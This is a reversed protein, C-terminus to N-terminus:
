LRAFIFKDTALLTPGDALAATGSPNYVFTQFGSGKNAPLGGKPLRWEIDQTMTIAPDDPRRLTRFDIVGRTATQGERYDQTNEPNATASTFVAAIKAITVDGYALGVILQDAAINPWISNIATMASTLLIAAEYNAMTTGLLLATEAVLTGTNKTTTKIQIDVM